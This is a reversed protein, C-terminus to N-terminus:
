KNLYKYVCLKNEELLGVWFFNNNVDYSLSCLKDIDDENKLLYM